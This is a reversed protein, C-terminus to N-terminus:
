FFGKALMALILGTWLIKAIRRFSSNRAIKESLGNDLRDKIGGVDDLLRDLKQDKTASVRVEEIEEDTYEDSM